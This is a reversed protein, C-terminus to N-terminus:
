FYVISKSAIATNNGTIANNIAQAFSSGSKIAIIVDQESKQVFTGNGVYAYHVTILDYGDSDDPDVLYYGGKLQAANVYPYGKLRQQDGHEGLYFWEMDAIMHSNPIETNSEGVTVNEQTSVVDGNVLVDINMFNIEEESMLGLIWNQRKETLVFSAPTTVGESTSAPTYVATVIDSLDSKNIDEAIKSLYTEAGSEVDTAYKRTFTFEGTQNDGLAHYNRITIAFTVFDGTSLAQGEGDVTPIPITWTKLTRKMDAAAVYKIYGGNKPNIVESRKNGATAKYEFWVKGGESMVKIDGVNALSQATSKVAKATFWRANQNVSFLAM